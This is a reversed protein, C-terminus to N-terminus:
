EIIYLVLIRKKKLNYTYFPVTYITLGLYFNHFNLYMEMSLSYMHIKDIGVSFISFFFM